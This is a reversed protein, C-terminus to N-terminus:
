YPFRHRVTLVRTLPLFLSSVAQAEKAVLLLNRTLPFFVIFFKQFLKRAKKSIPSANPVHNLRNEIITSLESADDKELLDAFELPGQNSWLTSRLELAEKLRAVAAQYRMHTRVRDQALMDDDPNDFAYATIPSMPSHLIPSTPALVQGRLDPIADAQPSQHESACLSEDNLQTIDRRELINWFKSRNHGLGPRHRDTPRKSNTAM